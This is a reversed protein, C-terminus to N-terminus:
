FPYAKQYHSSQRNKSPLLVLSANNIHTYSLNSRLKCIDQKDRHCFAYEYKLSTRQNPLWNFFLRHVLLQHQFFTAGKSQGYVYVGFQKNIILVKDIYAQYNGHGIKFIQQMEILMQTKHKFCTRVHKNFSGLWDFEFSNFSISMQVHLTLKLILVLLFLLM